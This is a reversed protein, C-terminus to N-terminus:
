APVTSGAPRFTHMLEPDTELKTGGTTLEAAIAPGGPHQYVSRSARDSVTLIGIPIDPM